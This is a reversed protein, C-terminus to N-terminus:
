DYRYRINREDLNNNKKRVYFVIFISSAMMMAIIASATLDVLSYGGVAFIGPTGGLFSIWFIIQPM